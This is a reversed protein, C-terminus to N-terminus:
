YYGKKKLTLPLSDTSEGYLVAPVLGQRRLRGSANKGLETRKDAKIVLTM